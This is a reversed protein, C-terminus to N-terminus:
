GTINSIVSALKNDGSISRVNNKPDIEIVDTGSVAVRYYHLSLSISTEGSEDATLNGMDIDSIIGRMEAIFPVSAGDNKRLSGRVILPIQKGISLLVGTQIGSLKLSAEMKELKGTDIDVPSSMGAGFMEQIKPTIKPLQLETATGLYGTGDLYVGFNELLNDFM